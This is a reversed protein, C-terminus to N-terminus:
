APRTHEIMALASAGEPSWEFQAERISRAFDAKFARPQERAAAEIRARAPEDGAVAAAVLDLM